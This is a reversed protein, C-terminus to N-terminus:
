EQVKSVFLQVLKPDFQTGANRKLEERAAESTMAARYVRESTMADYADCVALIRGWLSIDDGKRGCPYGTGDYREHHDLIARYDRDNYIKDMGRILEAGWGPHKKVEAFESQTLEGPKTLIEQPINVKGLDHLRAIYAIREVDNRSLNCAEALRSALQSVRESHGATYHDKSDIIQALACNIQEANEKQILARQTYNKNSIFFVEALAFAVLGGYKYVTAAMLGMVVSPLTSSISGLVISPDIRLRLVPKSLLIQFNVILGSVIVWVLGLVVAAVAFRPDGLALSRGPWIAHFAFWASIACLGTIARNLALKLATLYPPNNEHIIRFEQVSLSGLMALIASTGADYKIICVMMVPLMMVVVTTRLVIVSLSSAWLLSVFMIASALPVKWRVTHAVALAAALIVALAYADHLAHRDRPVLEVGMGM